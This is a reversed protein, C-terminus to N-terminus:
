TTEVRLNELEHLDCGLTHAVEFAAEHENHAYLLLQDPAKGDPTFHLVLSEGEQRLRLGSYGPISVSM